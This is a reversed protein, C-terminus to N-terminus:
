IIKESKPLQDFAAHRDVFNIRKNLHGREGETILLFNDIVGVGEGMLLVNINAAM